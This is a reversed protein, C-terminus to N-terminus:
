SAYCMTSKLCGVECLISFKSLTPEPHLDLWVKFIMRLTHCVGLLVQKRPTSVGEEGRQHPNSSKRTALLKEIHSTTAGFQFLCSCFADFLLINHINLSSSFSFGENEGERRERCQLKKKVAYNILLFFSHSNTQTALYFTDSLYTKKVKKKHKTSKKTFVISM